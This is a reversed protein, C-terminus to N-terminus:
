LVRVRSLTGRGDFYFCADPDDEPADDSKGNTVIIAREGDAHDDAYYKVGARELMARFTDLDSPQHRPYAEAAEADPPVLNTLRELEAAGEPNACKEPTCGRASLYLHCRPCPQQPDTM